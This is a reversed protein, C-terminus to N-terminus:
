IAVRQGKQLRARAALAARRESFSCRTNRSMSASSLHTQPRWIVACDPGSGAHALHSRVKVQSARACGRHRNSRADPMGRCLTEVGEAAGWEACAATVLLPRADADAVVLVIAQIVPPVQHAPLPFPPTGLDMPRSARLGGVLLTTGGASRTSRRCCPICAAGADSVSVPTSESLPSGLRARGAKRCTSRIPLSLSRFLSAAARSRRCWSHVAAWSALSSCSTSRPKRRPKRLARPSPRQSSSTPSFGQPEPRSPMHASLPCPLSRAHGENQVVM